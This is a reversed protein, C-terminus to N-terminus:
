GAAEAEGPDPVPGLWRMWIGDLAHLAHAPSPFESMRSCRVVRLRPEEGDEREEYALTYLLKMGDHRRFEYVGPRAPLGRGDFFPSGSDEFFPKVAM